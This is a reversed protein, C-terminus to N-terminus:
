GGCIKEHSYSNGNFEIKYLIDRCGAYINGDFTYVTNYYRVGDFTCKEILNLDADAIYFDTTYIYVKDNLITYDYVYGEVRLGSIEKTVTDYCMIKLRDKTYGYALWYIKNGYFSMNYFNVSDTGNIIEEKQNETYLIHFREKTDADYEYLVSKSGDVAEVAMCETKEANEGNLGCQYYRTTYICIGDKEEASVTKVILKDNFRSIHKANCEMIIIKEGTAPNYKYVNGVTEEKVKKDPLVFYLWGDIFIISTANIEALVNITEGNKQYLKKGDSFFLTDTEEIYCCMSTEHQNKNNLSDYDDSVTNNLDSKYISIDATIDSSAATNEKCSCLLMIIVLLVSLKKM